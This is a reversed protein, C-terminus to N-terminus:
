EVVDFVTRLKGFTIVDGPIIETERCRAHKRSVESSGLVIDCGPDGGLLLGDEISYERGGDLCRLRLTSSM